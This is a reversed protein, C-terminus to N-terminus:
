APKGRTIEPEPVLRVGVVESHRVGLVHAVRRRRSVIVPEPTTNLLVSRIVPNALELRSGTSHILGMGLAREVGRTAREPTAEALEALMDLDFSEPLVAAVRLLQEVEAGARRVGGLVLDYVAESLQLHASRPVHRSAERLMESTLMTHGRTTEYVQSAIGPVGLRRALEEVDAERLPGIAVHDAVEALAAQVQDDEGDRATVLLLLHEAGGPNRRLRSAILRLAAITAADAADADEVVLLVPTLAAIRLIVSVVAEQARVAELEPGAPHVGDRGLLAVIDPMLAGLPGAWPAVVERARQPSLRELYGRVAGVVPQLFVSRTAEHCRATAVLGGTQRAFREVEGALRSRGQGGAGTLLVTRPRGAAADDWASTLRDLESARGVLPPQHGPDACTASAAGPGAESPLTEGLLLARHLARSEASPSAGLEEGLIRRLRQYTALAAGLRGAGHHARMVARHAEEDLSDADVAAEAACLATPHDGLSMAASWQVRRARRAVRDAERRAADAQIVEPDEELLRGSGLMGLAQEAAALALAPRDSAAQVEAERVLAAAEDVDVTCGDPNLMYGAPGGRIRGTGLSQRLRSVLSAVVRTAQAPPAEAWLADVIRHVDLVERRHLVLLRLLAAARGGPPSVEVGSGTRVTFRNVLTIRISEAPHIEVTSMLSGSRPTLTCDADRRSPESRMRPVGTLGQDDM